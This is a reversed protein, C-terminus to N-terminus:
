DTGPSSAHSDSSPSQSPRPLLVCHTLQRRRRLPHSRRRRRPLHPRPPPPRPFLQPRPRFSYPTSVKTPQSPLPFPLDPVPLPNMDLPQLPPSPPDSPLSTVPSTSLAPQPFTASTLPQSPRLGFKRELTPPMWPRRELALLAPPLALPAPPSHSSPLLLPSSSSDPVAADPVSQQPFPLPGLPLEQAPSTSPMLLAPHMLLCLFWHHNRHGVLFIFDHTFLDPCIRLIRNSQFATSLIFNSHGPPPSSPCQSPVPPRPHSPPEPLRKGSHTNPSLVRHLEPYFFTDLVLVRSRDLPHPLHMSCLYHSFFDILVGSLCNGQRLRQLHSATLFMSVRGVPPYSVLDTDPQLALLRLLSVAKRVAAPLLFSGPLFYLLHGKYDCGRKQGWLTVLSHKL